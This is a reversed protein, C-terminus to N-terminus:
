VQPRVLPKKLKKNRHRQYNTIKRTVALRRNFSLHNISAIYPTKTDPGGVDLCCLIGAADGGYIVDTVRCKELVGIDPSKEAM